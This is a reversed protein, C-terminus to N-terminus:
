KWFIQSHAQGLKQLFSNWPVLCFLWLIEHRAHGEADEPNGIWGTLMGSELVVTV